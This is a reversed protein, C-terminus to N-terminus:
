RVPANVTVVREAFDGIRARVTIEWTGSFPISVEGTFHNPVNQYRELSDELPGLDRAPLRFEATVEELKPISGDLNSMTVHLETTGSRAPDLWVEAFGDGTVVTQRFTLAQAEIAPISASLLSTVVLVGAIVGLELVVSRRLDGASWSRLRRRSVWAVAVVVLVLAVKIVLLRGYATDFLAAPRGTQRIGQLGGSAALAIVSVLAAASFRGLARRTPVDADDASESRAGRLMTAAVALGGVWISMAVLHVLDAIVAIPVWRGTVAHGSVTITGLLAVGWVVVAAVPLESPRRRRMVVGGLAFLFARALAAQGYRTQLVDMWLGPRFSAVVGFGGAYAGQVGIGVLSVLAGAWALRELWRVRVGAGTVDRWLTALMAVGGVVLALLSFVAWREVAQLTAVVASGSDSLLRDVLGSTSGASPRGVAFTFAGNIPHGDSSVARWSVVYSGNGIPPADADIEKGSRRSVKGVEIEDGRADFLRISGVSIEVDENFALRIADPATDVTSGQVPSTSELVSHASAPVVNLVTVAVIVAFLALFRLAASRCRVAM